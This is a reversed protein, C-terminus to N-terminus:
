AGFKEEMLKRMLEPDQLAEMGFTSIMWVILLLYLISLGIGIYALIKGTKINGYNSYLEPNAQYLVVDKKAIVLAIIGLILGIGYCCCLPLSLIGLILVATANPLKQQEM